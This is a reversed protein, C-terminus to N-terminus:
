NLFTFAITLLPVKHEENGSALAFNKQQNFYFEFAQYAAFVEKYTGSFVKLDDVILSYQRSRRRDM